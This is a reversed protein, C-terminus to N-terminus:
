RGIVKVSGDIQSALVYGVANRNAAVLRKMELDPSVVKPPLGKGAFINQSWLARMTAASKGIVTAYFSARAESDEAQDLAFVPTGDPWGKLVGTYIRAVYAADVVNPNDKNVILVVGEARVLGAALALVAAFALPFAFTTKM